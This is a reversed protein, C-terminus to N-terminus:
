FQQSAIKRGKVKHAIKYFAELVLAQKSKTLELFDFEDAISVGPVEIEPFHRVLTRVHVKQTRSTNKSPELMIHNYIQNSLHLNIIRQRNTVTVNKKM